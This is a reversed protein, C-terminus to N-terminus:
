HEWIIENQGFQLINIRTTDSKSAAKFVNKWKPQMSAIELKIIPEGNCGIIDEDVEYCPHKGDDDRLRTM